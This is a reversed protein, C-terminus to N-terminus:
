PTCVLTVDRTKGDLGTVAATASGDFDVTISKNLAKATHVVTGSPCVEIGSSNRCVKVNEIKSDIERTGVDTVATGNTTRCGTSTDVAIQLDTTHSVTIGAINERNWAGKWAVSRMTGNITIDGSASHHVAKGNVTLDGDDSVQVHLTGDPNASFVATEDGSLHLLGFPGTCDNFHIHVVKPDSADKTRTECASPWLQTAPAVYQTAALTPDAATVNFADSSFATLQENSSIAEQGDSTLQATAADTPDTSTVGCAALSVATVPELAFMSFRCMSHIM